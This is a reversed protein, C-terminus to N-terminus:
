ASPIYQFYMYIMVICKRMCRELLKEYIVDNVGGLDSADNKFINLLNFALRSGVVPLSFQDEEVLPLDDELPLTVDIPVVLLHRPLDLYGVQRLLM